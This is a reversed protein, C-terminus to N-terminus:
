CWQYRTGDRAIEAVWDIEAKTGTETWILVILSDATAIGLSLFERALTSGSYRLLTLLKGDRYATPAAM